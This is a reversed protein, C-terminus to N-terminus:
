GEPPMIGERTYGVSYLFPLIVSAMNIFYEIETYKPGLMLKLQDMDKNRYPEVFKNGPTANKPEWNTAIEDLYAGHPAPDIECHVLIDLLLKRRVAVDDTMDIPLFMVNPHKSLETALALFGDVIYFHRLQPHRAERSLIAAVPNRVPIVTKFINCMSIITQM